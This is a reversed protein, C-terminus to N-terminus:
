LLKEIASRLDPKQVCRLDGEHIAVLISLTANQCLVRATPATRVEIRAVQERLAAAGLADANIDLLTSQLNTILEALTQLADETTPLEDWAITMQLPQSRQQSIQEGLSRAQRELELRNPVRLSLPKVKGFSLLHLTDPTYHVTLAQIAHLSLYTVDLADLRDGTRLSLLGHEPSSEAGYSILEGRLTHGSNLLVTIEPVQLVEGARMRVRLAQLETLLRNIETAPLKFLAAIPTVM